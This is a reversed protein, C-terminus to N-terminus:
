YHFNNLYLIYNDLKNIKLNSFLIILLFLYDMKFQNLDFYNKFLFGIYIDINLISKSYHYDQLELMISDLFLNYSLRPFHHGNLM